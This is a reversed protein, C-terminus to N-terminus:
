NSRLVFNVFVRGTVPVPEGNLITPKYRWQWVADEAAKRLLPPGSVVEVKTVVGTEDILIHLTVSGQIRAQRALPPYDPDVRHILSSPEIIAIRVPTRPKTPAPPPPTRPTRNVVLPGMEGRPVRIEAGPVCDQCGPGSGRLADLWSDDYVIADPPPPVNTTPEVLGHTLVVVPRDVPLRRVPQGAPKGAPPQPLPAAEPPDLILDTVFRKVDIGQFFVMPFVILACFAMSHILFSAFLKRKFNDRGPTAGAAITEFM